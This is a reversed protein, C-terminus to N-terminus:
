AQRGVWEPVQDLIPVQTGDFPNVVVGIPQPRPEDDRREIERWIEDELEEATRLRGDAYQFGQVRGCDGGNIRAARRIADEENTAIFVWHDGVHWGSWFVAVRVDARPPELDDETVYRPDYIDCSCSKPFRCCAPNYEGTECEPWSEVCAKLRRASM